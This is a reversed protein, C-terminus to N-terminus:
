ITRFDEFGFPNIHQIITTNNNIITNNITNNSNITNQNNTNYIQNQIQNPIQNSNINETPNLTTTENKNFCSIERQHRLLSSKRTFLKNCTNCNFKNIKISNSNQRQVNPELTPELIPEINPEINPQIIQQVNTQIIQQVNPQVNSDFSSFFTNIEDSSIACRSSKELHTKLTSPYRFKTNCKICTRDSM